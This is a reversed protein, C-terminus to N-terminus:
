CDELLQFIYLAMASQRHGRRAIIIPAFSENQMIGHNGKNQWYMHSNVEQTSLLFSNKVPVSMSGIIITESIRQNMVWIFLCTLQVSIEHAQHELPQWLPHSM